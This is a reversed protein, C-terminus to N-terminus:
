GEMGRDGEGGVEDWIRGWGMGTECGGRGDERRYGEWRLGSAEAQYNLAKGAAVPLSLCPTGARTQLRM